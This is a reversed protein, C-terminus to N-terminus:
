RLGSISRVPSRDKAAARPCLEGTLRRGIGQVWIKEPMGHVERVWGITRDRRSYAPGRAASSCGRRRAHVSRSRGDGVAVRV